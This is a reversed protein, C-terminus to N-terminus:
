SATATFPWPTSSVSLPTVAVTKRESAELYPPADPDRAAGSGGRGAAGGGACAGGGRGTAAGGAAGAGTAADAGTAVATAAAGAIM